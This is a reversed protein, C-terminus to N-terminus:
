MRTDKKSNERSSDWIFEHFTTGNWSFESSHVDVLFIREEDTSFYETFVTYNLVLLTLKVFNKCSFVSLLNWCSECQPSHYKYLVVNINRFWLTSIASIREWVECFNRSLLPKVLSIVLYNIQRFKKKTFSFKENKWM